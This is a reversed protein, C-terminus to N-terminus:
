KRPETTPAAQSLQLARVYAVIAWRDSVPIQAAYSPMNGIGNTITAFLQGDPINRLHNNPQATDHFSPPAAFMYGGTAVARRVIIGQGDGVRSHCPSCYINYRERGRALLREMGDTGAEDGAFSRVVEDPITMVFSTGDPQLGRTIRDDDLYGDRGLARDEFRGNRAVTGAPPTRMARHDAFFASRAQPDYREQHYMERLPWIPPEDSTQGRCSAASVTALV